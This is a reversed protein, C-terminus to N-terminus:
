LELPYRLAVTSTLLNAEDIFYTCIVYWDHGVLLVNNISEYDLIDMVDRAMAALRYEKPNTPKDTDGYGLLDPIILGYGKDSFHGAQPAWDHSTSPFGHLFLIFPKKATPIEYYYTYVFDRRTKLHKYHDENLRLM